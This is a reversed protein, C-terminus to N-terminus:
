VILTSRYLQLSNQFYAPCWRPLLGRGGRERGVMMQTHTHSLSLISFPSFSCFAPNYQFDELEAIVNGVNEVLCWRRRENFFGFPLALHLM